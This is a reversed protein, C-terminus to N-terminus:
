HKQRRQAIILGLLSIALFALVLSNQLRMFPTMGQRPIINGVMTTREFQPMSAIIEGRHNVLASVGNNTGRILYRQTEKARMQAMQMHQLPGISDGFWADNSITLLVDSHTANRAVLAPYVVEYCISTSIQYVGAQLGRQQGHGASIISTPLNFFDLTGRLWQELPVYEGFPVLRTKLYSGQGLGRAIISNYIKPSNPSRYLIGTILTSNHLAATNSIENIFPLAYEYLEPLAAEPWLVWDAEPWLPESMSSLLDLTPHKNEPLWKQDQSINPQVLGVRIPTDTVPKTWQQQNYANGTLWLVAIIAVSGCCALWRRSLASTTAAVLAAATTAVALSVLLVGGVPAFGALWTDLQSYGVYLWPFGTLLWGRLWEGLLWFAPGTLLLTTLPHAGRFYKFLCYPLAFVLALGAVFLGTLVLALPISSNGYQSISVFAWSAGVGFLGLGFLFAQSFYGTGRVVLSLQFIALGLIALPWCNFPALSLPTIAGAFLNLGLWLWNPLSLGPWAAVDPAPRQVDIPEALSSGTNEGPPTTYGSSM